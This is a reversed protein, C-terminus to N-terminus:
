PLKVEIHATQRQKVLLTQWLEMAYNERVEDKIRDFDSPQGPKRDTVKILHYGYDSRIVEGVDGVKLEFAAKAIREDVAWKRPFYGIDGGLPASACQSYKKAAEGFDLQGAVIKQRLDTLLVQASQSESPAAAAPVRLLIHSARVTVQDYFDRNQEYYRRLNPETLQRGVLDDWQLKKQIDSRLHTETQATDALFEQLTRKHSKLARELEALRQDIEKGEVRRGNKALYQRMLVDDVLMELAERRLQRQQVEKAVAKAPDPAPAPPLLKLVAELEAETILDGNVAAVPKSPRPPEQARAAAAMQIATAALLLTCSTWQRIDM